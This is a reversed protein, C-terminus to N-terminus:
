YEYKKYYNRRADLIEQDRERKLEHVKGKREAHSLSHDHRVSWIRDKYDAKIDAIQMELKSPRVSYAPPYPYWPYVGYGYYPTFAGIGVYVRPRYYGGGRYFHGGHGYRQASAAVALGLSFLIIM